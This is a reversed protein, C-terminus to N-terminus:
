NTAIQLSQTEFIEFEPQKLSFFLVYLAKLLEKYLRKLNRAIFFGLVEAKAKVLTRHRLREYDHNWKMDGFVLEITASRLRMAVRGAPTRVRENSLIRWAPNVEIPATYSANRKKSGTCSARLHCRICERVRFKQVWIGRKLTEPYALPVHGEPCVVDGSENVKWILPEPSQVPIWGTVGRTALLDHTVHSDYGADCILDSPLFGTTQTINELMGPVASRDNTEQTVDVAVVYNTECDVAVQVSYGLLPKKGPGMMRKADPDSSESEEEEEKQTQHRFASAASKVKTSDLSVRGLQVLGDEMGLRVVQAFIEDMVPAIRSRFRAITRYDPTQSGTIYIFRVDYLCSEELERSSTRGTLGGLLLVGLLLRPHYPVGGQHEFLELVLSLDLRDLIGLLWGPLSDSGVRDRPDGEFLGAQSHRFVLHSRVHRKSSSM